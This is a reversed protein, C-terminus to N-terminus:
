KKSNGRARRALAYLSSAIGGPNVVITLVLLLSSLLAPLYNTLQDALAFPHMAKGIWDPLFVVIVAGIGAGLISRLGGLISGTLLSLSLSIGFVSPGVLGRLGYLAGAVGAFASSIAFIQTKTRSINIGMLEAAPEHDRLARWSRASRSAFLNCTLFLSVTTFILAVFLQWLEFSDPSVIGSLWQAPTGFDISLGTEGGFISEFRNAITPLALALLLTTGALYPGSLRAAVLGLLYGAIAASVLSLPIAVWMSLQWNNIMLACSYGGIAMLAGQGLSLQGSLGTLINISLVGIFIILAVAIQGQNYPGVNKGVLLVVVFFLAAIGLNRLGTDIKKFM